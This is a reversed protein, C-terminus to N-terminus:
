SLTHSSYSIGTKFTKGNIIFFSLIFLIFYVDTSVIIFYIIDFCKFVALSLSRIEELDFADTDMKM